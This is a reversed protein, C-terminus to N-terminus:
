REKREVGKYIKSIQSLPLGYDAALVHQFKDYRDRIEANRAQIERSLRVGKCLCRIFAPSLKLADAIKMCTEGHAYRKRIEANRARIEPSQQPGPKVNMEVGKCVLYMEAKRTGYVAALAKQTEGNAYRERIEADRAQLKRSPKVDKCLSRVFVKSLGLDAAIKECTEGNSHRARIKANRARIEPSQQSGPKVKRQVGKCIHIVSTFGYDAAIKVSAEGNAYRRRIEANRARVEPSQKPGAKCIGWIITRSLGYDMSIKKQTEGYAWSRRIEANRAQIELSPERKPKAKREVGKCIKCIAGRSVGYDPAIKAQTEGNAYRERIEANRKEWGAKPRLGRCIQYIAGECLGYDGAIAPVVHGESRRKRIEANREARTQRTIPLRDVLGAASSFENKPKAKADPSGPQYRL